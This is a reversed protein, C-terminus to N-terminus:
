LFCEKTINIFKQLANTLPIDHRRIFVTTVFGYAEPVSHFQLKNDTNLQQAILKSVLAVGLGAKVCGIM